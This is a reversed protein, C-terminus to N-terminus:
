PTAELEVTLADVAAATAEKDGLHDFTYLPIQEVTASPIKEIAEYLPAQRDGPIYKKSEVEVDVYVHTLEGNDAQIQPNCTPNSRANIGHNMPSCARGHYPHSPEGIGVRRREKVVEYRAPVCRIGNPSEVTDLGATELDRNARVIFDDIARLRKLSGALTAAAKAYVDRIEREGLERAREARERLATVRARQENQKAESLRSTLVQIREQTRLQLTRSANIKEEIADVAADDGTELPAARAAMLELEDKEAAILRAREAEIRALLSVSDAQGVNGSAANTKQPKPNAM